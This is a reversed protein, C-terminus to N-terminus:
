PSRFFRLSILPGHREHQAQRLMLPPKKVAESISSRQDPSGAREEPGSHARLLAERIEPREWEVVPVCSKGAAIRRFQIERWRAYDRYDVGGGRANAVGPSLMWQEFFRWEQGSIAIAGVALIIGAAYRWRQNALDAVAGAGYGIFWFFAVCTPAMRALNPDGVVSFGQTAIIPVLLLLWWWLGVRWRLLARIMGILLLPVLAWHFPPRDTPAYHVGGIGAGVFLYQTTKWLQSAALSLRSNSGVAAPDVNFISVTIVRQQFSDWNRITVPLQPAFVLTATAAILAYAALVHRWRRGSLVSALPLCLLWCFVILRGTFYGYCSLALATGAGLHYLWRRAGPRLGSFFCWTFLLWYTGVHINEWGSRSFNLFWPNSLLVVATAWAVAVSCSQRLLGYLLAAALLSLLISLLRMGLITPGVVRMLLATAHSTLAPMPKWDLGFLPPGKGHLIEFVEATTTYEDASIRPPVEELRYLRSAAGILLFLAVCAGEIVWRRASSGAM